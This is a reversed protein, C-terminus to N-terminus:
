IESTVLNEASPLKFRVEADGRKEKKGGKKERVRSADDAGLRRASVSWIRIKKDEYATGVIIDDSDHPSLAPIWAIQPPRRSQNTDKFYRDQIKAVVAKDRFDLIRLTNESLGLDFLMRVPPDIKCVKTLLLSSM